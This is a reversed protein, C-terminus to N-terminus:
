RQDPRPQPDVVGRVSERLCGPCLCGAGAATPVALRLELKACWCGAGSDGGAALQEPHCDFAAGCNGCTERM